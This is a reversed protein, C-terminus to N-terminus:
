GPMRIGVDEDHCVTADSLDEDVHPEDGVLLLLQQHIFLALM